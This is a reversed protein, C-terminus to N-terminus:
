CSLGSGLISYLCIPAGGLWVWAGSDWLDLLLLWIPSGMLGLGMGWPEKL